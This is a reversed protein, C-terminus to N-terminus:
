ANTPSTGGAPPPYTRIAVTTDSPPQPSSDAPPAFAFSSPAIRSDLNDFLPRLQFRANKRM